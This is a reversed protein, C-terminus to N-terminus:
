REKIQGKLFRELILAASVMDRAGYEGSKKSLPGELLEVAECTSYSEDVLIVNVGLRTKLEHALAMAKQAAKGKVGATTLPLGLILAEPSYKELLSAITELFAGHPKRPVASLPRALTGTDDTVAIGVTVAGPDLSLFRPM